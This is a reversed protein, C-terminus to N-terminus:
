SDLKSLKDIEEIYYYYGRVLDYMPTEFNTSNNLINVVYNYPRYTIYTSSDASYFSVKYNRVIDKLKTVPVTVIVYEGDASMAKSADPSDCFVENVSVGSFYLRMTSRSGFTLSVGAFNIQSDAPITTEYRYRTTDVVPIGMERDKYDMKGNALDSTSGCNYDFYIQAASGYNLLAKALPVYEAYRNQNDNIITMCYDRVSVTYEKGVTGDSFHVQVRIDDAMQRAPVYCDFKYYESSGVMEKRDSTIEETITEEGPIDITLYSGTLVQPDNRIDMYFSFGIQDNLKIQYGKLDASLTIFENQIEFSRSTDVHFVVSSFTVMTNGDSYVVTTTNADDNGEQVVKSYNKKIATGAPAHFIICCTDPVGKLANAKFEISAKDTYFHVSNLNECESFTNSVIKNMGSGFTVTDLNKCGTFAGLQENNETTTYLTTVSSLDVSGLSTCNNFAGGGIRVVSSLSIDSLSSCNRFALTAIETVSEPLSVSKLGSCGDFCRENIKTTGSPFTISELSSCNMFAGSGVVCGEPISIATLLTCNMFANAGVSSLSDPLSVSQMPFAQFAVASISTIGEGIEVDTIMDKYDKIGYDASFALPGPISGEGTIVLVGNDRVEFDLTDTIKGTAIVPDGEAPPTTEESEETSEADEIDEAEEYIIDESIETEEAQETEAPTSETSKETEESIETEEVDEVEEYVIDEDDEEESEIPETEEITEEAAVETDETEDAFSYMPFAGAVLAAALILAIIKGKKM